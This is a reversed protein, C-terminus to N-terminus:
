AGRGETAARMHADCVPCAPLPTEAVRQGNLSVRVRGNLVEVEVREPERAADRERLAAGTLATLTPRTLHGGAKRPFREGRSFYDCDLSIGPGRLHIPHDTEAYGCEACTRAGGEPGPCDAYVLGAGSCRPCSPGPCGPTPGSLTPACQHRSRYGDREDWLGGSLAVAVIRGCKPCPFGAPAKTEDSM